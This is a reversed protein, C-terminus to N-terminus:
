VIHIGYNPLLTRLVYHRHLAAAFHFRYAPIQTAYQPIELGSLGVTQARWEDHSYDPIDESTGRTLKKQKFATKWADIRKDRDAVTGLIARVTPEIEGFELSGAPDGFEPVRQVFDRFLRHLAAAGEVYEVLNERHIQNAGSIEEMEYAYDWILYPQDPFTAVAGHGLAGSLEGGVISVVDAKFTRFNQFFGGQSSYKKFFSPYWSQLLPDANIPKLTSFHVRNVRSSVGSFGHHAFTDAYVHAAIGILELSYFEKALGLHHAAMDQAVQSDKVCMLRQSQTKGVNGPLFHFPVWVNIQDDLNNIPILATPHHATAEGRFRAGDPHVIVETATSDDVFEAATAILLASGPEIGAARAMAYTGYYHMDIDMVRSRLDKEIVGPTRLGRESADM